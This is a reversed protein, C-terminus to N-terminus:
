PIINVTDTGQILTGDFTAGTLTIETTYEDLELEQIKFYLVLDLDGDQDIGEVAWRLPSAGAFLVTSPDVTAADFDPTTLIAVPLSGRSTLRITNNLTNPKIDITVELSTPAAYVVEDVGMDVIATGDGNGDLIRADGDFDYLPMFLAANNGADIAPSDPRLHLDLNTLDVFGPDTDINGVGDYGGQVDSYSVVPVSETDNNYIEENTDGWLICNTIIPSSGQNWIGGGGGGYGQATSALNGTFTCNTLVPSSLYNRMGGGGSHQNASNGVFICNTLTPTSYYNFMGGGGYGASNNEFNCNNMVPSSSWNSIGGGYWSASNGEFSSDTLTPSSDENNLGGGGGATNDSFICSTLVPSSHINHMGGGHIGSNGVFTCNTLGPSSNDNYMGGGYAHPYIDSNANGGTITFGDLIASNNLGLDSPHYFVHYSNDSIDGEIGLDGSLITLNTAWDREELINEVGAFGGYIAVGNKMQFSVSRPNGPTFEFTPKYTGAAVWVQDGGKAAELAPQLDTFADAWSSGNNAGTADADVYITTGEALSVQEGSAILALAVTLLTYILVRLRHNM